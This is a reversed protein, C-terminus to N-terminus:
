VCAVERYGKDLKQQVRKEAQRLAEAPSSFVLTQRQGEAGIRGFRILVESGQVRVEWFKASSGSVFELRRQM